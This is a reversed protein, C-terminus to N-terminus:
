QITNDTAEVCLAGCVKCCQIHSRLSRDLLHFLIIKFIWTRIDELYLYGVWGKQQIGGTVLAVM